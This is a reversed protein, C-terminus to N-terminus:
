DSSITSFRKHKKKKDTITFSKLLSIIYGWVFFSFCPYLIMTSWWFCNCLLLWWFTRDVGQKSLVDAFSNTSRVDHCFFVDMHSDRQKPAISPMKQLSLNCKSQWLVRCMEWRVGFQDLLRMLWIIEKTTETLAVQEVEVLSLAVMDHLRSMLCVAGGGLSSIVTSKQTEWCGVYDADVVCVIKLPFGGFCLCEDQTGKLYQLIWKVAQLHEWGPHSM